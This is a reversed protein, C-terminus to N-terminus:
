DKGVFSLKEKKAFEIFAEAIGDQTSNDHNFLDHEVILHQHNDLKLTGDANKVYIKDGSNDKSSKQMTAFFIPYDEVKPCLEDHWKQVFLVSTKTGTHPKFVNGHLGVVALIRCREAIFDRIYKDSSNNFRGQPLVIAMRGGDKLFDLNREIFLIDRGVKSQQKGKSNKGLEYRALIRTEKIDGAFPPNAMLVDFQFDRNENKTKRLKRLKKWGEGYVDNWEEEKTFDEWREYDLTNLHLVNTQGDGAILNLTRAVRVAKEDFDIAFVKEKVYDTQEPLKEEATFLHSRELGRAKLQKEWVHFISHVPFGCSGAATDIVTEEPKPDLMKVCMDIVYRPTFYQGKEGKSSKNILYEFAEDVVDLNSNFLKVEELSSVCIALHSPSLNIKASEAFVGEWKNKARDFLSQIKAKLESETDGYNRFELYRSKNRTSEMEDYLKTFILQFLEEFVDVGANALVEDEMEIVLDKLSKRQKAIKDNDILDQITWREQLLDSLKQQANPIDPIDKFYNPDRRNYYSISEGNTWVGIPAGTANCYSKLQEKGDKLKPKKLEVMIYVANPNDRDFIVIDARKKERGFVVSYELEMREFPYDYEYHLNMLYLQRVAEEPTL